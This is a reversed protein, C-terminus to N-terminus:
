PKQPIVTGKRGRISVNLPLIVLVYYNQCNQVPFNMLLAYQWRQTKARYRCRHHSSPIKLTELDEISFPLM